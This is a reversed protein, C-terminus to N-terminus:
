LNYTVCQRRGYEAILAADVLGDHPVTCKATRRADVGPFLLSFASKSRLKANDYKPVGQHMAQQWKQPRVEVLPIGNALVLGVVIGYAEGLRFHAICGNKPVIPPKEIYAARLDRAHSSLLRNLEPIDIGGAYRPMPKLLIGDPGIVALGGDLGPDVGLINVGPM